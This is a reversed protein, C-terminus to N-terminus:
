FVVNGNSGLASKPLGWCTKFVFLIWLRMVLMVGQYNDSFRIDPVWGMCVMKSIWGFTYFTLRARVSMMSISFWIKRRWRTLYIRLWWRRVRTSVKKLVLQIWSIATMSMPLTRPPLNWISMLQNRSRNMPSSFPTVLTWPHPRNVFLLLLLLFLLLFLLSSMFPLASLRFSSGTIRSLPLTPAQSPLSGISSRSSPSLPYLRRLSCTLTARLPQHSWTLILLGARLSLFRESARMSQLLLFMLLHNHLFHFHIFLHLM